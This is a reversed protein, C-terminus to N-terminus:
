AGTASLAFAIVGAVLAGVAITIVYFFVTALAARRGTTPLMSSTMATMVAFGIAVGVLYAPLWEEVEGRRRARDLRLVGEMLFLLVFQVLGAVLVILMGQGLGPEPIAQLKRNIEEFEEDDEAAEWDWALSASPKVPGVVKNAVAVAARFFTSGVVLVVLVAVFVIPIAVGPGM